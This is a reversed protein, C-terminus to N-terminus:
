IEEQIFAIAEVSCEEVCIGCGKCHKYNIEAKDEMMTIAVEPCFIYCRRCGMCKEADIEPRFIRWSSVDRDMMGVLKVEIGEIDSVDVPM